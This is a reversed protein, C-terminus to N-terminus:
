RKSHRRPAATRAAATKTARAHGAAARPATKTATSKAATSKAPSSKAPTSKPSKLSRRLAEMLDIVKGEEPPPATVTTREGREKREILAKVAKEYRDEFQTPDFPSELQDIIKEAIDGMRADTDSEPIGAFAQEPDAVDDRMRLTYAIIGRGRPELAMLRERTHLTVRGLAIRNTKALADRIVSYAEVAVAGDPFLLYPEDWFLRDITSADVFHEIDLVHTTEPQVEDLEDQSVVVYRNKEVEYGKVLESREIPGTDPDTPVMRIRNHTAPNILHFQIDNRRKVASQLAVACSVLSLRL